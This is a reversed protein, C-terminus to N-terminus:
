ATFVWPPVSKLDHSTTPSFLSPSPRRLFVITVAAEDDQGVGGDNGPHRRGARVEGQRGAGGRMRLPPRGAGPGSAGTEGGGEGVEGRRQRGAWMGPTTGIIRAM